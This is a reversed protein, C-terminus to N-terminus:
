DTTGTRARRGKWGTTPAARTWGAPRPPWPGVEHTPTQAGHQQQWEAIEVAHVELLRELREAILEAAVPAVACLLRYRSELGRSAPPKKSASSLPTLARPNLNLLPSHTTGSNSKVLRIM